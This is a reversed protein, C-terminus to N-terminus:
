FASLINHFLGKPRPSATVNLLVLFSSESPNWAGVQELETQGYTFCHVLGQMTLHVCSGFHKKSPERILNNSSPFAINMLRNGAAIGLTTWKNPSASQLLHAYSSSPNLTGKVEWKAAVVVKRWGASSVIQKRAELLLSSTSWRTGWVIEKFVLTCPRRSQNVPLM